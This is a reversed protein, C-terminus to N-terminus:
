YLKIRDDLLNVTPFGVHIEMKENRKRLQRMAELAAFSVRCEQNWLLRFSKLPRPGRVDVMDRGSRSTLADVLNAELECRDWSDSEIRLRRLNPLFTSANARNLQHVFSHFLIGRVGGIDLDALNDLSLLTEINLKNDRHPAYNLRVLSAACRSLLEHLLHPTMDTLRTLSLETLSPFGVLTLIRGASNSINLSQLCSHTCGATESGSIGGRTLHIVTCSMLQPCSRFIFLYDASSMSGGAFTTIQCWPIEIIAPSTFPGLAVERLNPTDRFASITVPHSPLDSQFYELGLRRVTPLTGIKPLESLTTISARLRLSECRSAYRSVITGMQNELVTSESRGAEQLGLALLAASARTIWETMCSRVNKMRRPHRFHLEMDLRAWLLPTALAVSRWYSCVQLLLLPADRSCPRCYPRPLCLLFIEITIDLPVTLIRSLYSEPSPDSIEHGNENVTLSISTNLSGYNLEPEVRPLIDHLCILQQM